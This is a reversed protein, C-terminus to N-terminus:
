VEEEGVRIMEFGDFRARGEGDIDAVGRFSEEVWELTMQVVGELGWYSLGSDRVLQVILGLLGSEKKNVPRAARRTLLAAKRVPISSGLRSRFRFKTPFRKKWRARRSLIQPWFYCSLTLILPALYLIDFKLSLLPSSDNDKYLSIVVFMRTAQISACVKTIRLNQTFLKTSISPHRSM